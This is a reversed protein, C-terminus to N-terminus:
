MRVQKAILDTNLQVDLSQLVGLSACLVQVKARQVHTLSQVCCQEFQADDRV